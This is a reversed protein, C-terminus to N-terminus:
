AKLSFYLNDFKSLMAEEKFDSLLFEKARSGMQSALTKNKLLFILRGSFDNIDDPKVLFGNIGNHIVEHNACIATAVVPKGSAGAEIFVLPLGEWLSSLALIDISHYIREIDQRWGLFHFNEKKDFSSAMTQVDKRLVGDGVFVFHVEPIERLVMRAIKLFNAHAKQPKFCAVMGIVPSEKRINLLLDERGREIDPNQYKSIDIGYRILRYQSRTGIKNRLGKEIDYNSVAILNTTFHAAIRELMVYAKKIVINQYDHFSWGHITHFITKVGALRAAFRGLIGAKSSHTHVIDIRYKRLIRWLLFSTIIDNLPSIQRKLNNIFFVKIGPIALVEDALFGRSTILFFDYKDKPLGRIITLVNKQAGGLELKTVIEAIKIKL